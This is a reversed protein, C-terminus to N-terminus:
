SQALARTEIWEALLIFTNRGDSGDPYCRAFERAKASCANREAAVAAVVDEDARAMAREVEDGHWKLFQRLCNVFHSKMYLPVRNSFHRESSLALLTHEDFQEVDHRLARFAKLASQESMFPGM